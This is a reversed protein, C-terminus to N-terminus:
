AKTRMAGRGGHFLSQKIRSTSIAETRPLYAVECLSSLHDFKGKWDDGIVFVDIDLERIDNAKQLWCTEPIVADVYRIATVIAAREVYPCECRKHKEEETFEDTSVAVTLHTGLESARRLMELHGFHFLDFTGYTIINRM